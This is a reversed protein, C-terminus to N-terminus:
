FKISDAKIIIVVDASSRRNAFTTLGDRSDATHVRASMTKIEFWIRRQAAAPPQRKLGVLMVKPPTVRETARM